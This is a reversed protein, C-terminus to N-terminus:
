GPSPRDLLRQGLRRRWYAGVMRQAAAFADSIAACLSVHDRNSAPDRDTVLVSGPVHVTVHVQYHDGKHHRRHLKEVVVHCRTMRSCVKELKSAESWIFAAVEPCHPVHRYAIQLTSRM